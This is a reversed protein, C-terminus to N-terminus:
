LAWPRNSFGKLWKVRWDEIFLGEIWDRNLSKFTKQRFKGSDGSSGGQSQKLWLGQRTSADGFPELGLLNNVVLLM